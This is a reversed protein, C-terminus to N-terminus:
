LWFLIHIFIGGILFKGSLEVNGRIASHINEIILFILSCPVHVAWIFSVSRTTVTVLYHFLFVSTWRKKYASSLIGPDPKKFKHSLNFSHCFIREMWWFKFIFKCGIMVQRSLVSLLMTRVGWVFIKCLSNRFSLNTSFMATVISFENKWYM